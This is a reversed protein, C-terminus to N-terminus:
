LLMNLFDTHTIKPNKLEPIKLHNTTKQFHHKKMLKMLVMPPKLKPIKLLRNQKLRIQKQSMSLIM